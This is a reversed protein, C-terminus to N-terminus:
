NVGRLSRDIAALLMIMRGLGMLVLGGVIPFVAWDLRQALRIVVGLMDNTGADMAATFSEFLMPGTFGVLVVSVLM